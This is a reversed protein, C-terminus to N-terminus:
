CTPFVSSYCSRMEEYSQGFAFMKQKLEVHLSVASKCNRASSLSKHVLDGFSKLVGIRTSICQKLHCYTMLLEEFHLLKAYSNPLVNSGM